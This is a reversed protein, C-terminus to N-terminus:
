GARRKAVAAMKGELNTPPNGVLYMLAVDEDGDTYTVQRQSRHRARGCANCRLPKARVGQLPKLVGRHGDENTELKNTLM